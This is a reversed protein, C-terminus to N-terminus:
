RKSDKPACKSLKPRHSIRPESGASIWQQLTRLQLAAARDHDDHKRRVRGSEVPHPEVLAHRLDAQAADSLEWGLPATLGPHLGPSITVTCAQPRLRYALTRAFTEMAAHANFGTLPPVITEFGIGSGAIESPESARYHNDLEVIVPAIRRPRHPSTNYELVLQRLKPWLADITFLGSNEAYGGDVLGMQCTKTNVHACAADAQSPDGRCHGAIRGSPTVYPFRSALIAATSLSMDENACLADSVEATGALPYQGGEAPNKTELRPWMGLDAASTVARAQGGTVTSNDILLPVLDAIARLKAKVSSRMDWTLRVNPPFRAKSGWRDFADAIVEARDGGWCEEGIRHQCRGTSDVHLGLIHNPLDHFLAWGITPSAFDHGLRDHVWNAPLPRTGPSPSGLLQRAYVDLGVAGGSVGSAIFIRRAAAQQEAPTRRNKECTAQREADHGSKLAALNMGTSKIGVICDLALDTWYAAKIGGGHAAVLFMPIPGNTSGSDTGNLEPQAAAWTKFADELSPTAPIRGNVETRPALQVNHLEKPAVLGAGVWAIVLVTFLPFRRAGLWWLLTPALYGRTIRVLGAGIALFFALGLSVLAFTGLSPGAGFPDFAVALVLALGSMAALVLAVAEHQDDDEWKRLFLDGAYVACFTAALGAAAASGVLAWRRSVHEGFLVLGVGVPPIVLAPIAWTWNPSPRIIGPRTGEETLLVAAVGMIFAPLLPWLGAFPAHGGLSGDVAATVAAAAIALLPIIAVYEATHEDAVVATWKPVHPAREEFHPRDLLFIAFAIGALVVFGKGFPGPWWGALFLVSLIFWFKPRMKKRGVPEQRAQQITWLGIEYIVLALLLAAATGFGIRSLGRANYPVWTRMSDIAQGSTQAVFLLLAAFLLGVIVTAYQTRVLAIVRFAFSQTVGEDPKAAAIAVAALGLAALGLLEFVSAWGSGNGYGIGARYRFVAAAIGVALAFFGLGGLAWKVGVGVSTYRRRCYCWVALALLLLALLGTGAYVWVWTKSPLRWCEGHCAPSGHVRLLFNPAVWQTGYATAVAQDLRWTAVLVLLGGVWFARIARRSMTWTRSAEDRVEETPMTPRPQEIRETTM